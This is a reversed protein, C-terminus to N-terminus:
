RGDQDEVVKLDEAHFGIGVQGNPFRVDYFVRSFAQVPELTEGAWKGVLVKTGSPIVDAM